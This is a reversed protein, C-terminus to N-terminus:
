SKGHKLSCGHKSKLVAREPAPFSKKLVEAGTLSGARVHPAVRIRKAEKEGIKLSRYSIGLESRAYVIHATHAESRTKGECGIIEGTGANVTLHSGNELGVSLPLYASVVLPQSRIPIRDLLQKFKSPMRFIMVFPIHVLVAHKLASLMMRKIHLKEARGRPKLSHVKGCELCCRLHRLM